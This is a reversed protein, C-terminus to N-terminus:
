FVSSVVKGTSQQRKPRKPATGGHKAWQKSRKHSELTHHHIWTKDMTVFRLLFEKPNRNFYTLNKELTTVRIRKQDITLLQLVWRACLKKMSLHTHLINVVRETSIFAIKAIKRVKM